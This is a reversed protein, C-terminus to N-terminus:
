ALGRVADHRRPHRPRHERGRRQPVAGTGAHLTHDPAEATLWLQFGPAATVRERSLAPPRPVSPSPPASAAPPVVCAGATPAQAPAHRSPWPSCCCSAPGPPEGGTPTAPRPAAGRGPCAPRPSTTRRKPWHMPRAAAPRSRSRTRPRDDAPEPAFAPHARLAALGRRPRSRASPATSAARRHRTRSPRGWSWYRGSAPHLPHGPRGHDRRPTRRIRRPRAHPQHVREPLFPMLLHTVRRRRLRSINNNVLSRRVYFDVEDATTTGPPRACSPWPPRCSTRPRTATGPSCCPPECWDTALGRRCLRRLRPKLPFPAATEDQPM